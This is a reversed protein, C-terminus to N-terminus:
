QRLEEIQTNFYSIKYNLQQAIQLGRQFAQLAQATNGLDRHLQGIQDYTDMISLQDYSQQAVDILLQYVVLADNPRDLSRYLTALRRLADGAFGYQQVSRAISFAEQYSPAALDPRGLAVFNDGIALKLPSLELLAQMAEYRQVLEQQIAIAEELLRGQQYIFELKELYDIELQPNGQSRAMALLELYAAAANPYDFWILYLEGLSVLIAQEQVVNGEQRARALLQQYLATAPEIARMQEYAQAIMTLLAYDTPTQLWVEQEIAQLRETVLRVETTQSERWAVEGVRALAPVEEQVGLIRRLRLERLWLDIAGPINGAQYQATAQANLEDLATTLVRREQPSLPRDVLLEPYLPDTVDPELPNPPFAAEDQALAPASRWLPVGSVGMLCAIAVAVGGRRLSRWQRGRELSLFSFFYKLFNVSVQQNSGMKFNVIPNIATKM